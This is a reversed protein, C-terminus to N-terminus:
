RPLSRGRVAVAVHEGDALLRADVGFVDKMMAETLV